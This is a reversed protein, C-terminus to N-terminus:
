EREEAERQRSHERAAHKSLADCSSIREDHLLAIKRRWLNRASAGQEPLLEELSNVERSLANLHQSIQSKLEISSNGYDLQVLMEQVTVMIKRASAHHAEMTRSLHAMGVPHLTQTVGM